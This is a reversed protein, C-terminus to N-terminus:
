GPPIPKGQPDTSTDSITQQLRQQMEPRTIHELREATGHSHDAKVDMQQVLFSEWLRHSRLLESAKARGRETLRFADPAVPEIWQRRRLTRLAVGLSLPTVLLDHRLQETTLSPAIAADNRHSEEVRYLAGLVDEAIIRLSLARRHALKSLIGHRPAALMVGLFILGAVSAMMGSTTTGTYGFWTPVILASLHGLVGCLFAIVLSALIMPGLRDTLLHAAAPPVILMAVVLISGVAEFSAVTTAAVLTMLLYHMLTSNIGLTTALAPDFSSIKLEKYLLAVFAINILLMAALVAVVRPVQYPGISVLHVPITELLGYLVCGPDLDIHDAARRILILGVAFLATFVVGMSAGEDVKGYQAIAQILLATLVGVAIAGILMPTSDRSGTIIFAAALGPLVAHSLADGMMSMRRLVMFNGLLACSMACLVAAAVIWGDLAWIWTFNEPLM